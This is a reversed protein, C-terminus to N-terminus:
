ESEEANWLCAIGDSKENEFGFQEKDSLFLLFILPASQRFFCNLSFINITVSLYVTDETLMM